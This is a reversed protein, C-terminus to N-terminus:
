DYVLISGNRGGAFVRGGPFGFVTNLQSKVGSEMQTWETGDWHLISGYGGVVFLDGPGSGWIDHLDVSTPVAIESWHLGEDELVVGGNGVVFIETSSFGWVANLRTTLHSGIQRWGDGDYFVIVGGAAAAYYRDAAAAWVGNLDVAGNLIESETWGAGDYHAVVGSEGVAWIDDAATGWMDRIPTQTSFVVSWSGANYRAIVNGKNPLTTKEGAAWVGGAPDAWVCRLEDIASGGPWRWQSGDFNAPETGAGAAWVDDGTVGHIDYVDTMEPGSNAIAWEAGDFSAVSGARGVAVIADSSLGHIALMEPRDPIHMESWVGSQRKYVRGQSALLYLTGDPMGLMDRAVGYAAGTSEGTWGSGDHLFVEGASAAVYVEDNAFAWLATVDEGGGVVFWMSSWLLGDYRHALGTQGCIFVHGGPVGSVANVDVTTNINEYNWSVGDFRSVTGYPGVAFINDPADGWVDDFSRGSGIGFFTWDSGDYHHIEGKDGVVWFNDPASGWVGAFDVDSYPGIAAGLRGDSIEYVAGNTGIAVGFTDALMRVGHLDVGISQVSWSRPGDVGKNPPPASPGDDSCCTFLLVIVAAFLAITRPGPQIHISAM